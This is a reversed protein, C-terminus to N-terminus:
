GWDGAAYRVQRDVVDGEVVMARAAPKRQKYGKGTHSIFRSPESKVAQYVGQAATADTSVLLAAARDQIRVLYGKTPTALYDDIERGLESLSEALDKEDAPM